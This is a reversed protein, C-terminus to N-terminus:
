ISIRLCSMKAKLANQYSDTGVSESSIKAELTCLFDQAEFRLDTCIESGFASTFLTLVFATTIMKKM